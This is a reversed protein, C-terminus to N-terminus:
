LGTVFVAAPQGQGGQGPWDMSLKFRKGNREIRATVGPLYDKLQQLWLALDRQAIQGASCDQPECSPQAPLSGQGDYAILYDSTNLAQNRNARLRDFLSEALLGARTQYLAQNNIQLARTQLQAFGLLGISLILVAILVELLTDGNQLTFSKPENMDTM